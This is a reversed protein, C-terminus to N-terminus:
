AFFCVPLFILFSLWVVIKNRLSVFTDLVCYAGSPYILNVHPLFIDKKILIVCSISKFIWIGMNCTAPNPLRISIFSSHERNGSDMRCFPEDCLGWCSCVSLSRECGAVHAAQWTYVCGVHVCSAACVVSLSFQAKGAGTCIYLMWVFIFLVSPKIRKRWLLLTLFTQQYSSSIWLFWQSPFPLIGKRIGSESSWRRCCFLMNQWCSCLGQKRPSWCIM